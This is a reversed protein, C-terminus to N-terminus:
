VAESEPTLSQNIQKPVYVLKARDLEVGLRMAAIVADTQAESNIMGGRSRWRYIQPPQRGIARAFALVGGFQRICYLLPTGEEYDELRLEIAPM